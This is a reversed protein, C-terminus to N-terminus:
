KGTKKLWKEFDEEFPDRLSVRNRLKALKASGTALMAIRLGKRLASLTRHVEEEGRIAARMLPLGIGVANAGVAVAKAATLGDRIGGTAILPLDIGANRIAGLAYATPIGWDRFTSAIALLDEQGSRIGEIYSWSTGGKGGVDIAQVGADKLRQADRPGIGSGVEKVIVPVPLKRCIQELRKLFGSFRQDGEIQIMEQLVNLHIALANADVMSVARKCLDVGNNLVQAMGLNGILFLKPFRDKLQFLEEYKKNELAIRQSGIGMPINFASAASALHRNITGGKTIGGTMGTVLLPLDFRHGLFECRTDIDSENLEPIAQPILKVRSFGTFRDSAEIDYDNCIDVHQSKRIQGLLEQLSLKDKKEWVELEWGGSTHRRLTGRLELSSDDFLHLKLLESSAGTLRLESDGVLVSSESLAIINISQSNLEGKLAQSLQIWVTEKRTEAM